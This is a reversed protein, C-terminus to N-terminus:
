ASELQMERRGASKPEDCALGHQACRVTQSRSTDALLSAHMLHALLIRRHTRWCRVRPYTICTTCWFICCKVIEPSERFHQLRPTPRYWDPTTLFLTRAFNRVACSSNQAHWSSHCGHFLALRVSTSLLSHQPNRSCRWVLTLSALCSPASIMNSWGNACKATRCASHIWMKELSTSTLVLPVIVIGGCSACVPLLAGVSTVPIKSRSGVHRHIRNPTEDRRNAKVTRM